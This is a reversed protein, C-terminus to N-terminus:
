QEAESAIARRQSGITHEKEELLGYKILLNRYDQRRFLKISIEPCLEQLRRLKRNKETVLRQQRTTLEVYLDQSPLYFDPAFAEVPNGQEDWELVFTRPEYQWEIQYFDLLRAFEEESPHAFRVERGNKGSESASNM